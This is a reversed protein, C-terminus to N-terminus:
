EAEGQGIGLRYRSLLISMCESTEAEGISSEGVGGCYCGLWIMEEEILVACCMDAELISRVRNNGLGGIGKVGDKLGRPAILIRSGFAM